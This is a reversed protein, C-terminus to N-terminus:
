PSLREVRWGTEAGAERGRLYRLRDHLRNPRGQWFEITEPVVRYGGWFDPLPVEGTDDGAPDPWRAALEAYREELVEANPIVASQRESAWAGIRSGHPRSRFYEASEEAPLREVRGAVRVQRHVAHWPFVLAARPNVALDRAKDSTYNTFFRFGDAGYGKLLVTRASPVADASATALVMANPEPLGSAATDAFWAAFLTLPDSPVATERLRDGEYSRRLRAPDPTPLDVVKSGGVQTKHM